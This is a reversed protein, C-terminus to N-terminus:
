LNLSFDIQHPHHPECLGPLRKDRSYGPLPVVPMLVQLGHGPECACLGDEDAASKLLKYSWCM